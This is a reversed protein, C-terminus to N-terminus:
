MIHQRREIHMAGDDRVCKNKKTINDNKNKKIM